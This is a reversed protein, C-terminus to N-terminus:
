GSTLLRLGLKGDKISLRFRGVIKTADSDVTKGRRADNVRRHLTLVEQARYILFIVNHLRIEPVRASLADIRQSSSDLTGSRLMWRRQWEQQSIPPHYMSRIPRDLVPPPPPVFSRDYQWPEQPPLKQEVLRASQRIPLEVPSSTSAQAM